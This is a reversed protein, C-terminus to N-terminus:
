AAHRAGTIAARAEQTRQESLARAEQGVEDRQIGCGSGPLGSLGVIKVPTSPGAEKIRQGKDSVLARIKAWYTRLRHWRRRASHRQSGIRDRRKGPEVQAEIVNGKAPVKPSAKLEM